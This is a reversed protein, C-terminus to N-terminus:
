YATPRDLWAREVARSWFPGSWTWGRGLRAVDRTFAALTAGLGIGAAACLVLPFDDSPGTTPTNVAIMGAIFAAILPNAILWLMWHALFRPIM